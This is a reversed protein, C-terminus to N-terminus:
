WHKADLCHCREAEAGALNDGMWRRVVYQTEGCVKTNNAWELEDEGKFHGCDAHHLM